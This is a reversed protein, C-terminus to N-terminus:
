DGAQLGLRRAMARSEHQQAVRLGDLVDHLQQQLAESVQQRATAEQERREQRMLHLRLHQIARARALADDAERQRRDSVEQQRAEQRMVYGRQEPETLRKARRIPKPRGGFPCNPQYLDPVGHDRGCGYMCTYDPIAM